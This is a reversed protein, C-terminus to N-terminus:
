FIYYHDIDINIDDIDIHHYKKINKITQTDINSNLNVINFNKHVSWIFNKKKNFFIIIFYFIYYHDFINTIIIILIDKYFGGLNYGQYQYDKEEGRIFTSKLNPSLSPSSLFRM